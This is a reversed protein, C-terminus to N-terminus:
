LERCNRNAVVFVAIYHSLNAFVNAEFQFQNNMLDISDNIQMLDARISICIEMGARQM